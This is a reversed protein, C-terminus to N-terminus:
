WKDRRWYTMQSDWSMQWCTWSFLYPLCVNGHRRCFRFNSGLKWRTPSSSIKGLKKGTNAYPPVLNLYPSKWSGRNLLNETLLACVKCARGARVGRGPGLIARPRTSAWVDCPRCIFCAPQHIARRRCLSSVQNSRNKWGFGFPMFEDEDEQNMVNFCRQDAAAALMSPHESDDM